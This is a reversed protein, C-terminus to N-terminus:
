VEGKKHNKDSIMISLEIIIFLLIEIGCFNFLFPNTQISFFFMVILSVWANFFLKRTKSGKLGIFVIFILFVAWVLCGVIGLKMLMSPILMEYSYPSESSRIYNQLYSGYGFGFLPQQEWKEILLKTQVLKIENSQVTGEYDSQFPDNETTLKSKSQYNPSISSDTVTTNVTRVFIMNSFLITNMLAIYAISLATVKVLNFIVTKKNEKLSISLFYIIVLGFFFGYWLSKTMTSLFATTIFLFWVYYIKKLDDLKLIILYYGVLFFVATTFIVRVFNNGLIVVPIVSNGFTISHIFEFFLSGFDMNIRSGVYLFLYFFSEILISVLIIKRIKDWDIVGAEILYHIPFFLFLIFVSDADLFANSLNTGNLAPVITIWIINLLLFSLVIRCLLGNWFLTKLFILESSNKKYVVFSLLYLSIICLFFLVHRIPIQFIILQAGNFGIISEVLFLFPFILLLSYLKNYNETM